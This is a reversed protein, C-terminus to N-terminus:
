WRRCGVAAAPRRSGYVGAAVIVVSLVLAPVVGVDTVGPMLKPNPTPDIFSVGDWSAALSKSALDLGVLVVLLAAVCIM